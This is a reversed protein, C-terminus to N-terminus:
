EHRSPGPHHEHQHEHQHEHWGGECPEGSGLQGALYNRIADQITGYARTARLIGRRKFDEHAHRGMGGSIMVQAGEAAIYAAVAGHEHHVLHPNPVIRVQKIEEGEMDVFAFYPSRGMHHGVKSNLGEDTEASIAIRM